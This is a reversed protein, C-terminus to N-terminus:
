FSLLRIKDSLGPFPYVFNNLLITFYVFIFGKQIFVVNNITKHRRM